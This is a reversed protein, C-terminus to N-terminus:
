LKKLWRIAMDIWVQVESYVGSYNKCVIENCLSLGHPGEPFIHLETSIGKEVLASVMLLSNEVPVTQDEFTHWIFAPPTDENIQKECSTLELLEPNDQNVGLLNVFSGRHAKEGSTIVPYCLIMGDPKNEGGKLGFYEKIFDKNWLNGYSAALHGGASFGMVAIKSTDVLWEEANEKVMLFAATLELLQIPFRAPECSYRLVVVNIGASALKLAIPDAERESTFGYGGGPCVIVTPRKVEQQIETLFTPLYVTIYPQYNSTQVGLKSYDLNININECKM